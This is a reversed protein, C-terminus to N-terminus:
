RQATAGPRPRRHLGGTLQACRLCAAGTAPDFPLTAFVQWGAADLGCLARTPNAAPVAHQAGLPADAARADREPPDDRIAATAVVFRAGTGPPPAPQM